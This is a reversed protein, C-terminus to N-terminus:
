ERRCSATLNSPVSRSQLEGGLEASLKPTEPYFSLRDWQNDTVQDIQWSGRDGPVVLRDNTRLSLFRTM